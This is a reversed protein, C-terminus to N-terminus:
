KTWDEVKLGEVREFERTNGTVLLQNRSSAQGAILTDYEGIRQGQRELTARIRGAAEADETSFELLVFDSALFESLRQANAAVRLSKTVGYWLEHIVISSISFQAGAIMEQIYRERVVTSSDRIRAYPDLGNILAVCVNTDLLYSM